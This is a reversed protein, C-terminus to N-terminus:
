SCGVVVLATVLGCRPPTEFLIWATPPRLVQSEWVPRGLMLVGTGFPSGFRDYGSLLSLLMFLNDSVPRSRNLRGGETIIPHPPPTPIPTPPQPHPHPPTYLSSGTVLRLYIYSGIVIIVQLQRFMLWICFTCTYPVRVLIKDERKGGLRIIFKMAYYM